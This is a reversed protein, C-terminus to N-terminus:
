VDVGEIPTFAISAASVANEVAEIVVRRVEVVDGGNININVTGARGLGPAVAGGDEAGGDEGGDINLDPFLDLLGQVGSRLKEGLDFEPDNALKELQLIGATGAIGIAAGLLPPLGFVLGAVIGTVAGIALDKLAEKLEAIAERGTKTSDSILGLSRGLAELVPFTEGEGSVLRLLETLGEIAPSVFELITKGLDQAAKELETLADDIKGTGTAGAAEATLALEQTLGEMAESLLRFALPRKQVDLFFAGQVIQALKRIKAGALDSFKPLDELFSPDANEFGAVMREFTGSLDRFQGAKNLLVAFEFFEGFKGEMSPFDEVANSFRVFANFLDAETFAGELAQNLGDLRDQLPKAFKGTKRLTESFREAQFRARDVDQGFRLLQRFGLGVGLASGVALISRKMGNLTQNFKQIGKPDVDFSFRTSLERVTPM